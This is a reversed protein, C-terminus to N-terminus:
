RGPNVVVQEGGRLGTLVVVHEQDVREGLRLLRLEPRGDHALVYVMPLGGRSVVASVPVVPLRDGHAGQGPILVEAYMGAAAPASEPLAFKVRVTHRTPDAMPFVRAVKAAVMTKDVDDLRASVETGEHLGLALRAPVDVQVQLFRVDAFNVLPQGPQVTDGQNVHKTVIVGDFPAVSKTERLRADIEQLRSQAQILAARAQDVQTGYSYVQAQREVGSPKGGFMSSMPGPMM